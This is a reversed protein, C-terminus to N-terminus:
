NTDSGSAAADSIEHDALWVRRLVRQQMAESLRGPLVLERVARWLAPVNECQEIAAADIGLAGLMARDGDVAPRELRAERADQAAATDPMVAVGIAIACGLAAASRMAPAAGLHPRGLARLLRRFAGGALAACTAARLDRAREMNREIDAWPRQQSCRARNIWFGM